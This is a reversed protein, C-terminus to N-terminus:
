DNNKIYDDIAVLTKTLQTCADQAKGVSPDNVNKVFPFKMGKVAALAADLDTKLQAALSANRKNLYAYVSKSEDRGVDERGGFLSNQISLLNDTFDTISNYSYPSEIYDPDFKVDGNSTGHPRGIKTDGVENSINQCGAYVIDSLISKWTSYTSVQGGANLMNQSYSLGNDMTYPVEMSQVVSVHDENVPNWSVELRYCSNRLDGAVAAAYILELKGDLNNLGEDKGNLSAATRHQGDRFLIYEIGHFGLMSSGLAGGAWEAGDEQGMREIMGTNNLTTKLGDLDLPWSDIHPDIGFTTAAGYLFAESEEYNKRAQLFTECAQDIEAQTLPTGAKAKDRMAILQDYLDSTGDALKKYTINVTNDLYQKVIAEVEPNSTDVDPANDDSSCSAFGMTLAAGFLLSVSKQFLKNM